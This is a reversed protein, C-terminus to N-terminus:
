SGRNMLAAEFSGIVRRAKALMHAGAATMEARPAGTWKTRDLLGAEGAALCLYGHQGAPYRPNRRGRKALHRADRRDACPIGRRCHRLKLAGPTSEARGARRLLRAASCLGATQRTSGEHPVLLTTMALCCRGRSSYPMVIMVAITYCNMPVIKNSNRHAMSNLITSRRPRVCQLRYRQRCRSRRYQRPLDVARIFRLQMLGFSFRCISRM